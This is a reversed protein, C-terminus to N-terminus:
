RVEDIGQKRDNQHYRNRCPMLGVMNEMKWIRDSTETNATKILAYAVGPPHEPMQPFEWSGARMRRDESPVYKRKEVPLLILMALAGLM